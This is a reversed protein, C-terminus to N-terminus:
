VLMLSPNNIVSKITSLVKACEVSSILEESASLYVKAKDEKIIVVIDVKQECAKPYYYDINLPSLDTIRYDIDEGESIDESKKDMQSVTLENIGSLKKGIFNDDKYRYILVNGDFSEIRNKEIAFVISKVVTNFIKRESLDSYSVLMEKVLNLNAKIGMTVANHTHTEIVVQNQANEEETINEKNIVVSSRTDDNLTIVVRKGFSENIERETDPYDDSNEEIPVIVQHIVNNEVPVVPVEDGNENYEKSVIEEAIPIYLNNEENNDSVDSISEDKDNNNSNEGVSEEADDRVESTITSSTQDYNVIIDKPAEEDDYIDNQHKIMFQIIDSDASDINDMDESLNDNAYITTSSHENENNSAENIMNIRQELMKFDEDEFNSKIFIDEQIENDSKKKNNLYAELDRAEIRGNAGSGEIQSLDIGLAKALKRTAPSAKQKTNGLNTM